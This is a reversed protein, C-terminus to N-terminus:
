RRGQIRVVVTRRIPEVGARDSYRWGQTPLPERQARNLHRTVSFPGDTTLGVSAVGFHERRVSRAPWRILNTASGAGRVAAAGVRGWWWCPVGRRAARLPRHHSSLQVGGGDDLDSAGVGLAHSPGGPVRQGAERGPPRVANREDESNSKGGGSPMVTDSGGVVADATSPSSPGPRFPTEPPFTPSPPVILPKAHSRHRSELGRLPDCKPPFMILYHGPPTRREM